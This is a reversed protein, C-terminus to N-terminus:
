ARKTRSQDFVSGADYVTQLGLSKGDGAALAFSAQGLYVLLDSFNTRLNIAQYAGAIRQCM